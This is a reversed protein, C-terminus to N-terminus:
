ILSVTHQVHAKFWLYPADDFLVGHRRFADSLSHHEASRKGFFDLYIKMIQLLQSLFQFKEEEEKEEEKKKQKNKTKIRGNSIFFLAALM